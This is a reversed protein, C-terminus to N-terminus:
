TSVCGSVSATRPCELSANTIQRSSGSHDAFAHLWPSASLLDASEVVFITAASGRRCRKRDGGGLPGSRPARKVPTSGARRSGIGWGTQSTNPALLTSGGSICDAGLLVMSSVPGTVRRSACQRMTLRLVRATCSPTRACAGAATPMVGGAAPGSGAESCACRRACDLVSGSVRCLRRHVM